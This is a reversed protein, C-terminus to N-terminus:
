MMMGKIGNHSPLLDFHLPCPTPTPTKQDSDCYIQNRSLYGCESDDDCRVVHCCWMDEVNAMEVLVLLVVGVKMRAAMM